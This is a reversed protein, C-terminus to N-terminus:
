ADALTADVFRTFHADRSGFLANIVMARRFYHSVDLEDTIGLGGHM